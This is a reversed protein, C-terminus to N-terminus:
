SLFNFTKLVLLPKFIFYFANKMMRLPSENFCIFCNKRPSSHRVKFVKMFGKKPVVVFSNKSSKLGFQSITSGQFGGNIQDLSDTFINQDRCILMFGM